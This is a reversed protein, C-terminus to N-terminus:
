HCSSTVMNRCRVHRMIHRAHIRDTAIATNPWARGPYPHLISRNIWMDTKFHSRVPTVRPEVFRQLLLYLQVRVCVPPQLRFSEGLSIRAM